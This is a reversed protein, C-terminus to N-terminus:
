KLFITANQVAVMFAKHKAIEDEIRKICLEVPINELVIKMEEESMAQTRKVLEDKKFERTFM